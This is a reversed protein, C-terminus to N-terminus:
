DTWGWSIMLPGVIFQYLRADEFEVTGAFLNMNIKENENNTYWWGSSDWDIQYKLRGIARIQNSM